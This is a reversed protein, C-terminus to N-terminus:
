TARQGKKPKWNKRLWAESAAGSVEKDSGAGISSPRVPASRSLYASLADRVIAAQSRGERKAVAALSRQLDDALYLTTKQM